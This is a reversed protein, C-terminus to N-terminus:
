ICLTIGLSSLPNPCRPLMSRSLLYTTESVACSRGNCRSGSPTIAASSTKSVRQMSVLPPIDTPRRSAYSAALTLNSDRRTQHAPIRPARWLLKTQHGITPAHALCGPDLCVIEYLLQDSSTLSLLYLLNYRRHYTCM